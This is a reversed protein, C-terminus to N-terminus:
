WAPMLAERLQGYTLFHEVDGHIQVATGWCKRFGNNNDSLVWSDREMRKLYGGALDVRQGIPMAKIADLTM